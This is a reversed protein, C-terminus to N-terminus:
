LGLELGVSTALYPTGVGGVEENAFFLVHRPLGVALHVDGRFSLPGTLHVTSAARLGAVAQFLMVQRPELVPSTVTRGNVNVIGLGLAPELGLKFPSDSAGLDFRPGASVWGYSVEATATLTSVTPFSLPVMGAVFVGYRELPMYRLSLDLAAQFPLSPSTWLIAGAAHGALTVVPKREHLPPPASFGPPPWAPSSVTPAHAGPEPIREALGSKALKDTVESPPVEGPSAGPTQTELLSARLLEVARIAVAERADIAGNATVVERLVTKGTVRDRLWVEVAGNKEVTRIAALAEQERSV